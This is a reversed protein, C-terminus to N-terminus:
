CLQKLQKFPVPIGLLTGFMGLEGHMSTSCCPVKRGLNQSSSQLIKRFEEIRSARGSVEAAILKLRKALPHQEGNHALTLLDGHRPLRVPFSSLNDLLVPFWSQSTWWPFVIIARDVQDNVVKNIVRGVLNFPPFIYPSFDTWSVSFADSFSNGPEPFWSVFRDLRKNLRSAFLDIDPIFYHQCIRDFINQKLMWETSDSFNRSYFDADVNDEGAIHIASIHINRELCWNWIQIALGDMQGSEMGGFDNIYAKASVNDTQIEIHKNDIRSYLAKLVYFIALLELYNISYQSEELTWRGSTCQKSKIDMGGFGQLSADTRCIFDVDGPRINKGNKQRVKDRWWCLENVSAESLRVKKDFDVTGALGLVKNRELCRYHLKAEFVAYFANVVLGIFSALDRVVVVGREILDKAKLIIKQLKEETLFIKFEVSDVIFGFFVIRQCPELVSKERNIDFGLSELKGDMIEANQKCVMKDQNMNFSDDIYYSCRINQQRFWAFVPKLIKTFLFPAVSLGFPLCVFKYLTGDWSFKLYKTYEEHIPVSFYADSLDLKTFFDNKQILDLVVNFTEQKFHNYVVFENLYRLNIVPRFKGNPKPVIFITSIFEGPEHESRVIAGKQLLQKVENDVIEWQEGIFPIERPAKVQIPLETFEIKYGSIAQLIWNDTTINQWEQM